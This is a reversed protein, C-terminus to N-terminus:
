EVYGRQVSSTWIPLFVTFSVPLVRGVAHVTLLLKTGILSALRTLKEVNQIVCVFKPFHSIVTGVADSGYFVVVSDLIKGGLRGCGRGIPRDIM